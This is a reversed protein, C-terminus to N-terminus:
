RAPGPGGLPVPGGRGPGYIAAPRLILWSWPGAAVRQEEVIRLRGSRPTRREPTHEDVISASGYVGTTSLYVVRAPADGLADLLGQSGEPPVSHLVLAGPAVHRRVDDLGWNRHTATVVAGRALFRQAVRQGTYGCGLILVNVM